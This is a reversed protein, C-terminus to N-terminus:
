IDFEEALQSQKLEAWVAFANLNSDYPHGKVLRDLEASLEAFLSWYWYEDTCPRGDDDLPRITGTTLGGTSAIAYLMSSSGDYYYYAVNVFESPIEISNVETM